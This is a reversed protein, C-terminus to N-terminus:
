KRAPEETVGPVLLKLIVPAEVDPVLTIVRGSAVPVNAVKAPVSVKVLLVMVAEPRIVALAPRVM